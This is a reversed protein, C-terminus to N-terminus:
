VGYMQEYLSDIKEMKEKVLLKNSSDIPTFAVTFYERAVNEDVKGGGKKGMLRKPLNIPFVMGNTVKVFGKSVKTGVRIMLDLAKMIKKVPIKKLIKLATPSNDLKELVDGVINDMQNMETLVINLRFLIKTLARVYGLFTAYLGRLKFASLFSNLALSWNKRQLNFMTSSLDVLADIMFQVLATGEQAMIMVPTTLQSHVAAVAGTAVGVIPIMSSASIVTGLTQWLFTITPTSLRALIPTLFKKVFFGITRLIPDVMDFPLTLIPHLKEMTWLRYFRWYIWDFQSKENDSLNRESYILDSMKSNGEEVWDDLNRIKKRFNKIKGKTKGVINKKGKDIKDTVKDSVAGKIANAGGTKPVGTQQQPAEAQNSVPNPVPQGNVDMISNAPAVSWMKYMEPIPNNRGFLAWPWNLIKHLFQKENEELPKTLMSIKEIPKREKEECKCRGGYMPNDHISYTLEDALSDLSKYDILFQHRMPNLVMGGGVIPKDKNESVERVRNHVNMVGDWFERTEDYNMKNYRECQVDNFIRKGNEHYKKLLDGVNTRDNHLVVMIDNLIRNMNGLRNTLEDYDEPLDTEKGIGMNVINTMTDRIEGAMKNDCACKGLNIVETDDLKKIYEDMNMTKDETLDNKILLKM